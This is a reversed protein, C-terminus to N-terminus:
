GLILRSVGVLERRIEEVLAASAESHPERGEQRESLLTDVGASTAGVLRGSRRDFLRQRAQGAGDWAAAIVADQDLDDAPGGGSDDVLRLAHRISALRSVAEAYPQPKLEPASEPRIHSM